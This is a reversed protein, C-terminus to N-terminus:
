VRKKNIDKFKYWVPQRTGSNDYMGVDYWSNAPLEYWIIYSYEGLWNDKILQLWQSQQERFISDCTATRCQLSTETMWIPKNTLKRLDNYFLLGKNIADMMSGLNTGYYHVGLIDFKPNYILVNKFYTTTPDGLSGFMVLDSNDVSKVADYFINLFIAYEKPYDGWCGYYGDIGNNFDEENWFEWVQIYPFHQSAAVMFNKLEEEYVNSPPLCERINDTQYFSPTDHVTAIVKIKYKALLNIDEELLPSWSFVGPQLEQDAWSFTIRVVKIPLVKIDEEFKIPDGPYMEVGLNLWSSQIVPMYYKTQITDFSKKTPQCGVILLVLIILILRKM